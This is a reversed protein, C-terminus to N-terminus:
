RDFGQNFFSSDPKIDNQPNSISETQFMLYVKNEVVQVVADKVKQVANHHNILAKNLDYKLLQGQDFRDQQLRYGEWTSASDITISTIQQEQLWLTVYVKAAEYALEYVAQSQSTGAIRENLRSEKIQQKIGADILPQSVSLGAAESWTTGFQISETADPPLAPNFKRVPL